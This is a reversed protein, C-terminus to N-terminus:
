KVAVASVIAQAASIFANSTAMDIKKGSQANVDAIFTQLQNAGSNFSGRNFSAAAASLDGLLTNTVGSQLNAASVQGALNNVPQAATIVTVFFTTTSNTIWGDSVELSMPVSGVGIGVTLKVGTGLRGGYLFWTYMLSDGDPDSSRSGDLTM